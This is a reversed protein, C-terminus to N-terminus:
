DSKLSSAIAFVVEPNTVDTAEQPPLDFAGLRLSAQEEELLDFWLGSLPQVSCLANLERGDISFATFRETCLAKARSTLTESKLYFAGNLEVIRASRDLAIRDGDR